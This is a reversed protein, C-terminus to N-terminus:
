LECCFCRVCTKVIWYFHRSLCLNVLCFVWRVVVVVVVVVSILM